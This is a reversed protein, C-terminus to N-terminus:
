SKQGSPMVPLVISFTSGKGVESALRIEGGHGRVIHDVVPLGIGTGPVGRAKAGQGRHFRRFVEAHEHRPIGIGHDRVSVVVRDDARDVSVHIHREDPSYKVANELLNWIARSFADADIAVAGSGRQELAVIYGAPTAHDRFEDVTQSVISGADHPALHYIRAGAEIRGLDLVSEVLRTLRDTARSQADYCVQRAAADPGDQERLIETFQRLTTLPTRFEHSVAAVFDSQLRAVALERAISRASFFCAGLTMLVLAGFGAALLTRRREFGAADILAATPTVTMGWPLGIEASSRSVAMSIDIAAPDAPAQGLVVDVKSQSAATRATQWWTAEVFSESAVLVRTEDASLHTLVAVDTGEIRLIQRSQSTISDGTRWRDWLLTTAQALLVRHGQEISRGLWREADQRYNDYQAPRLASGAARIARELEQGAQSVTSVDGGKEAAKGRLYAAVVSAPGATLRVENMAALLDLAAAAERWRQERQLNRALRLLAEGRLAADSEASEILRRLVASAGAHDQQRFELLDARDLAPHQVVPTVLGPVFALAGPPQVSVGSDSFRVLAAGDAWSTEGAALRREADQVATQLAGVVADSARELRDRTQQDHLLRNQDFLLKGAWLSIALPVATTAVILLIPGFGPRTDQRRSM